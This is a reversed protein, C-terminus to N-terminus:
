LPNQSTNGWKLKRAERAGFPTSITVNQAFDRSVGCQFKVSKRFVGNEVLKIFPKSLHQGMQNKQMKWAEFPTSITVNQAFDRSVSLQVNRSKWFGENEVPKM